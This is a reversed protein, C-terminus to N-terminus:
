LGEGEECDITIEICAMRDHAACVEATARSDYLSSTYGPYINLWGTRKIRPKVEILDFSSYGNSCMGQRTWSETLWVDCETYAGHVPHRGIDHIAYIIVERGGATEYKKDISVEM